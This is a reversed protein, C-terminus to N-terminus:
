DSILLDSILTLKIPSQFVPGWATFHSWSLGVNHQSCNWLGTMWVIVFRIIHIDEYAVNDDQGDMQGGMQRGRESQSGFRFCFPTSVGFQHFCKWPLLLLHALQWSRLDFTRTLTLTTCLCHALGASPRMVRWFEALVKAQDFENVVLCLHCKHLVVWPYLLPQEVWLRQM